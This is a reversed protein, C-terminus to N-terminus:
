VKYKSRYEGPTLKLIEYFARYFSREGGFGCELAIDIIKMDSKSLLGKAYEVRTSNILKRLNMNPISNVCQSLYVPHYGLAKALSARNINEKFHEKVYLLVSVLANDM